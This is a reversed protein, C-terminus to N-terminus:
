RGGAQGACLQTRAEGTLVRRLVPFDADAGTFSDSAIRVTAPAEGRSTAFAYIWGRPANGPWELVRRREGTGLGPVTVRATEGELGALDSRVGFEDAPTTVVWYEALYQRAVEGDALRVGFLASCLAAPGNLTAMPPPPPPTGM